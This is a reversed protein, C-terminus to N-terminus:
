YTGGGNLFRDISSVIIGFWGERRDNKTLADAAMAPAGRIVRDWFCAEVLLPREFENM